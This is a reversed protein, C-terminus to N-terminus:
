GPKRLNFDECSAYLRDLVNSKKKEYLNNVYIDKWGKIKSYLCLLESKPFM